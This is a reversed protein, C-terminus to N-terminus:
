GFYAQCAADLQSSAKEVALPIDERHLGSIEWVLPEVEIHELISEGETDFSLAITDAVHILAVEQKYEAAELPHHHWGMAAALYHPLNWSSALEAGIQAHNTGLREQEAELIPLPPDGEVTRLIIEHMEIPYRHLLILQGIDHLLGASFAAEPSVPIKLSLNQALLGCYLSHQWFDDVHVVDIQLKDFAQKIAATLVIDRIKNMGLVTVAQSITAVNGTGYFPSNAIALLRISLAPDQLIVKGLADVTCDPDNVMDNVRIGVEPLSVLEQYENILLEASSKM